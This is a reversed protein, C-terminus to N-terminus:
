VSIKEWMHYKRLLWTVRQPFLTFPYKFFLNFPIRLLYYMRQSMITLCIFNLLIRPMIRVVVFFMNSGRNWRPFSKDFIVSGWQGITKFLNRGPSRSTLIKKSNKANGVPSSKVCLPYAYTCQYISSKTCISSEICSSLLEMALASSNSCDQVLGDCNLMLHWCEFHRSIRSIANFM